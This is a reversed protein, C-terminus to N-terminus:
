GWINAMSLLAFLFVLGDLEQYPGNRVSSNLVSTASCQLGKLKVIIQFEGFSFAISNNFPVSFPVSKM